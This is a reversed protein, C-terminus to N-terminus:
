LVIKRYSSFWTKWQEETTFATGIQIHDHTPDNALMVNPNLMVRMGLSHALDILHRLTQDSPTAQKDRTIETSIITEQYINVLLIIWNAGM